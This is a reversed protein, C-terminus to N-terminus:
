GILKSLDGIKFCPPRRWLGRCGRPWHRFLHGPRHRLCNWRVFRAGSDPLSFSCQTTSGSGTPDPVKQGPRTSLITNSTAREKKPGIGRELRQQCLPLEGRGERNITKWEIYATGFMKTREHRVSLCHRFLTSGFWVLTLFVRSEEKKGSEFYDRRIRIRNRIWIGSEFMSKQDTLQVSLKIRPLSWLLGQFFM